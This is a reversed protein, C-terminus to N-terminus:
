ELTADIGGGKSNDILPTSLTQETAGYRGGGKSNDMLPPPFWPLDLQIVCCTLVWGKADDTDDGTNDM